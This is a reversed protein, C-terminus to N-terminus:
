TCYTSDLVDSDYQASELEACITPTINTFTILSWATSPLIEGMGPSNRFHRYMDYLTVNVFYIKNFGSLIKVTVFSNSLVGANALKTIQSRGNGNAPTEAVHLPLSSPPTPASGHWQRLWLFYGETTGVIGAKSCFKKYLTVDCSVEPLAAENQAVARHLLNMHDDQAPPDRFTNEYTFGGDSEM